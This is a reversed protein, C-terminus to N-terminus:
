TSLLPLLKNEFLELFGRYNKEFEAANRRDADSEAMKNIVEIDENMNQRIAQLGNTVSSMERNIIADSSFNILLHVHDTVAAIKSIDRSAMAGNDQMKGLTNLQVLQYAAGALLILLIIGFGLSLKYSVKLNRFWSM